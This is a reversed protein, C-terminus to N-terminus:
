RVLHLTRGWRMGRVARGPSRGTAATEAPRVSWYVLLARGEIATQPVPGFFRSDRSDDRNDGLCFVHEAPVAVPGFNDRRRQEPPLAPMAPFVLPDGRRTYGADEVPRGNVLLQKDRIAVEDGALAVVRKVLDRRPNEPSRFVIVDGRRVPRLPLLRSAAGGVAPAYVLKNVLVHDGVLLTGEMSATPITLARVLFTRAFLAVVLTALLTEAIERALPRRRVM